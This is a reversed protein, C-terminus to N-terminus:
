SHIWRRRRALWAAGAAWIWMWWAAAPASPSGGVACGAEGPGALRRCHSEGPRLLGETCIFDPPCEPAAAEPGCATTCYGFDRPDPAFVCEGECILRDHACADGPRGRLERCLDIPQGDLEVRECNEPPRCDRGSSCEDAPNPRPYLTCLGLKDDVALSRQGGDGKYTPAMTALPDESHHLGLVHGLEHTLVSELDVILRLAASDPSSQEDLLAPQFPAPRASWDYDLINLFVTKNPFDAGCTLATWAISGQPFCSSGGPEAFLFPVEGPQLDAATERRGAYEVRGFSCPIQTWAEAAARAAREVQAPTMGPPPAGVFVLRLPFEEVPVTFGNTV